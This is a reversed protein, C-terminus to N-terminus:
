GPRADHARLAATHLVRVRLAEKEAVASGHASALDQLLAEMVDWPPMEIGELCARMGDPDRQWFVACWGAGQDLRGLLSELCSVFERVQGPLQDVTM